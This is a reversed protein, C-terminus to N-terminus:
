QQEQESKWIRFLIFKGLRHERLIVEVKAAQLVATRAQMWIISWGSKHNYSEMWTNLAEATTQRMPTEYTAPCIPVVHREEHTEAQLDAPLHIRKRLKAVRTDAFGAPKNETINM